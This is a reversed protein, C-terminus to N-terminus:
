PPWSTDCASVSFSVIAAVPPSPRRVARAHGVAARIPTILASHACNLATHISPHISQQTTHLAHAIQGQRFVHIISALWSLLFVSSTPVGSDQNGGSILLDGSARGCCRGCAGYVLLHKQMRVYRMCIAVYLACWTNTLLLAAHMCLLFVCCAFACGGQQRRKGASAWAWELCAEQVAAAAADRWVVGGRVYCEPAPSLEVLCGRWAWRCQCQM